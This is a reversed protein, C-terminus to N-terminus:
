RLKVLAVWVLLGGLVARFAGFCRVRIRSAGHWEFYDRLYYPAMLLTMGAVAMAYLLTVVVLRWSSPHSRILQLVPAPILSLLGGLSRAALLDPMAYWSFPIALATAILIYMRYPVLFDLPLAYLLAGAWILALASFLYGLWRSRPLARLAEALVGPLALAALGCLASAMGMGCVWLQLATM